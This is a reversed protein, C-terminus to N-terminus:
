AFGLRRNLISLLENEQLANVQAADQPRSGSTGIVRQRLMRLNEQFHTPHGRYPTLRKPTNVTAAWSKTPDCIPKPRTPTPDPTFSDVIEGTEENVIRWRLANPGVKSPTHHRLYAPTNPMKLIEKFKPGVQVSLM